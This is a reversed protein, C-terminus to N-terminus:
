VFMYLVYVYVNYVYRDGPYAFMYLVYVYANYMYMGGPHISSSEM